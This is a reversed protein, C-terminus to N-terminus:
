GVPAWGFADTGTTKIWLTEGPGGDLNRYDSGPPATQGGEPTGRGILSLCGVPESGSTLALQGGAGPRLTLNTGATSGVITGGAGDAGIWGAPTASMAQWGGGAAQWTIATGAAVTLPGGTWNQQLPDSGTRRFVTASSCALTLTRGAPAAGPFAVASAGSGDGTITVAIASGPRGYRSGPSEVIAGIVCGGYVIARAAAPSGGADPPPAIALTAHTYGSGPALIRIFSIGGAARASSFPLLSDIGDPAPGLTLEAAIDPFVLQQLGDATIAPTAPFSAGLNWRNARLTAGDTDARVAERVDGEGAFLNGEVLVGAIGDRLWIGGAGLGYRIHNATLALNESAIGFTAGEGDAEVTQAAIAYLTCGSITNGAVALNRGGGCNIGYLAGDIQNGSLTCDLSGGCDIGYAAGGAATNSITNGAIRCLSANALIGGGGNEASGNDALLNGAVALGRGSVAIGYVSNDHCLNGEIQVALADPNANGWDPAAGPAPETNTANYNGVAIGRANGWARNGLLQVLRAKLAFTPDNFDVNLGYGGNGWAQCQAVLVGQRAQVWLGHAANGTFECAELAIRGLGPAAAITLGVGLVPHGAGEFRCRSFRADPCAATVLVGWSAEAVAPGGADFVIGHAVVGPAQLSIWAGGRNQAGRRLVTLGPSGLLVAGPTAVSWQGDVRYVRAGLRVPRGSALAQSLAPGDDHVGDGVAGFSEAPVADQPLIPVGRLTTGSLALGPGLTLPEVAGTGLSRGLLQGKSLVLERQMGALLQARSVARLSGGQSAPLLDTDAAASALPLESLTPM